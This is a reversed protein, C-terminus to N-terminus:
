EIVCLIPQLNIDLKEPEIEVTILRRASWRVIHGSRMDMKCKGTRITINHESNYAWAAIQIAIYYDIRYRACYEAPPIEVFAVICREVILKSVKKGPVEIDIDM